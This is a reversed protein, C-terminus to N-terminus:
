SQRYIMKKINTHPKIPCLHFGSGMALRMSFKYLFNLWCKPHRQGMDRVSHNM